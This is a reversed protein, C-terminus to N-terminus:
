YIWEVLVASASYVIRISTFATVYNNIVKDSIDHDILIEKLLILNDSKIFKQCENGELKKAFYPSRTININNM